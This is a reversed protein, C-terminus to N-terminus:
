VLTRNLVAESLQVSTTPVGYPILRDILDALHASDRLVCEAVVCHDGTVRKCRLVEPFRDLNSLFYQFGDDKFKMSVLVTLGYGLKEYDIDLRFGRIVGSDVLSGVREKVASQSMGIKRGIEAYSLRANEGLANLIERDIADVTKM